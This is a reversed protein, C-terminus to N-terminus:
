NNRILVLRIADDYGIRDLATHLIDVRMHIHTNFDSGCEEATNRAYEEHDDEEPIFDALHKAYYKAYLDVYTNHLEVGHIIDRNYKAEGTELFLADSLENHAMNIVTFIKNDLDGEEMAILAEVTQMHSREWVTELDIKM